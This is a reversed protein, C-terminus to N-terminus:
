FVWGRDALGTELKHLALLVEIGGVCRSKAVVLYLYVVFSTPQKIRWLRLLDCLM